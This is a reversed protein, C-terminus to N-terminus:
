AAGHKHGMWYDPEFGLPKGKMTPWEGGRDIAPVSRSGICAVTVTGDPPSVSAPYWEITRALTDRVAKALELRPTM